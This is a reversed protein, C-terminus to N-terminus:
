RSQSVTEGWLDAVVHELGLSRLTDPLPKGSKRDWGMHRYYNDMMQSWYPKISKGKAPGDTPAALLRGSPIEGELTVGSRLDFARHLTIGRVGVDLAEKLTLDWGTTANLIDVLPKIFMGTALFCIVLSDMLSRKGKMAVVLAPLEEPSFADASALGLEEPHSADNESFGTGTTAEDLIERWIGSRVDYNRVITGKKLYVGCERAEGGMRECCRMIGEALFDGFGERRAIKHLMARVAEVNGWTMELGDTQERTILGREYCEILWSMLWGAENGELGLRDVEGALMTAAGPDTQGICSGFAAMIEYEGEEGKYGAYPGETVEVMYCHHNRCAWC